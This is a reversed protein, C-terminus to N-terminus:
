RRVIHFPHFFNQNSTLTWVASSGGEVAHSIEHNDFPKGNIVFQPIPDRDIPSQVQFNVSIESTVDQDSVIYHIGPTFALQAPDVNRNSRYNKNIHITMAVQLVNDPGIEGTGQFDTLVNQWIHYVGPTSFKLLLAQRQGPGVVIMRKEYAKSFSIGDSAFVWFPLATEKDNDSAVYLASGTTTQGCLLRMHAVENVCMEMSPQFDNNTNFIQIMETSLFQGEVYTNAASQGPLRTTDTVAWEWLALNESRDVGQTKLEYEPSGPSDVDGVLLWGFMGQWSQMTASGHRHVHYFYAGQPHEIPVDFVYCFCSQL